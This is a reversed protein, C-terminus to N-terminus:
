YGFKNNDVWKRGLGVLTRKEEPQQGFNQLFKQDIVHTSDTVRM